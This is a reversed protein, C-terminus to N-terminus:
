GAKSRRECEAYIKGVDARALVNQNGDEGKIEDLLRLALGYERRADADDGLRLSAARLYHATASLLRLGLPEAKAIAREAEQRATSRDGLRLLTEARRISCEVALSKLGLSDADQALQAFTAALVNSPQLAAATRVAGARALLALSRDSAQSAAQSAKQALDSAGKLDGRYYLRDSQFRLTQAILIPNRLERAVNMAEDLSTAAEDLRGSLSLSNGYGGLIESLWMDRLKLERFTTLAEEESKLAAGFRGQDEFIAGISYSEIAAGRRDGASRRLDLARHFQSLAQDYRGM